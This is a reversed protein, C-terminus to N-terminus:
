HRGEIIATEVAYAILIVGILFILVSAPHKGAELALMVIVEHSHSLAHKGVARTYDVAIKLWRM